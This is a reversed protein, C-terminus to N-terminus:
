CAFYIHKVQIWSVEDGVAVQYWEDLLPANELICGEPFYGVINVPEYSPLDQIVFGNLVDPITWLRITDTTYAQISEAELNLQEEWIWGEDKRFRVPYWFGKDDADLRISGVVAEGTITVVAGYPIEILNSGTKVDPETWLRVNDGVHAIIDSEDEVDTCIGSM